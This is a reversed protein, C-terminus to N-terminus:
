IAHDNVMVSMTRVCEMIWRVYIIPLGLANLMGKIFPWEISDYAKKLDIKIMYRYSLRKSAYGKILETALIM